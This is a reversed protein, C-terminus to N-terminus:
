FIKLSLRSVSNELTEASVLYTTNVNHVGGGQAARRRGAGGGEPAEHQSKGLFYMRELICFM